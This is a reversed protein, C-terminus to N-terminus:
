GRSRLFRRLAGRRRAIPKITTAPGVGAVIIGQREWAALREDLSQKPEVPVIRAVERGRECLVVSTGRKVHALIEALKTKIENVPYSRAVERSYLARTTM